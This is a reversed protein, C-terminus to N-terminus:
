AGWRAVDVGRPRDMWGRSARVVCGDVRAGDGRTEVAFAGVRADGRGRGMADDWRRARVMTLDGVTSFLRRARRTAEEGRAEGRGEDDGRARDGGRHRGEEM